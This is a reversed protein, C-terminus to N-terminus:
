VSMSCSAGSLFLFSCQQLVRSVNNLSSTSVYVINGSATNSSLVLTRANPVAQSTYLDIKFGPPLAITDLPLSLTQAPAQASLSLLCACLLLGVAARRVVGMRSLLVLSGQARISNSQWYLYRLLESLIATVRGTLGFSRPLILCSVSLTMKASSIHVPTVKDGLWMLRFGAPCHNKSLKGGNRLTPIAVNM